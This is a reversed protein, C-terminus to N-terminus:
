FWKKWRFYGLMLLVSIGMGGLVYFYGQKVHLEPMNDFNMGYVGAVFSLPIFITSIVTLVKMINNMKNSIVNMCLDLVSGSLDRFGDLMEIVQSLNDHLDHVFPQINESVHPGSYRLFIGSVERLPYVARRMAMLQKRQLYIANLTEDGPKNIAADELDELQRGIEELVIFYSDIISDFLAYLLYDAGRKRINGTSKSLRNRVYSFVDGEREQFTLIINNKLIFSVQEVEQNQGSAKKQIMKLSLHMYDEVVEMKPRQDVDLIDELTLRHIGFIEGIQEIAKIDHLGTIDVWLVKKSDSLIEPLDELQVVVDEFFGEDYRTVEIRLESLKQDGTFVLAGPPLGMKAAKRKKFININPILDKTISRRKNDASM